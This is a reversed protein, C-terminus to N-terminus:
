CHKACCYMILLANLLLTFLHTFNEDTSFIGQKQV